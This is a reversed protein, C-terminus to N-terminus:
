KGGLVSPPRPSTLANARSPESATEGNRDPGLHPGWTRAAGRCAWRDFSAAAYSLAALQEGRMLPMLRAAASHLGSAVEPRPAYGLRALAGYLSM